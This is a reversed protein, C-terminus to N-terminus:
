PETAQSREIFRRIFLRYSINRGFVTNLFTSSTSIDLIFQITLNTSFIYDFQRITCVTKSVITFKTIFSKFFLISLM